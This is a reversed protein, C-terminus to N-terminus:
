QCAQTVLTERVLVEKTTSLAVFQYPNTLAGDVACGEGPVVLELNVVIHAEYDEIDDIIIAYGSSPREGMDLLLIRQKSFDVTATSDASYRPLETDYRAQTALVKIGKSFFVDSSTRDAAHLVTMAVDIGSPTGSANTDSSCGHSLTLLTIILAIIPLKKM